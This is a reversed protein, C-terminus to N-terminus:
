AAAKVGDIDPPLKQMQERYVRRLCIMEAAATIAWSVIYLLYLSEITHFYAFVTYVWIIRFVCSGMIVIVTPVFSKGLGRNAAITCDMFASFAYSCGMIRLRIMGAQAVEEVNTFIGLFQRGFIVLLASMVLAIGFSFVMSIFYSHIIRKRKGAGYNQGVFTMSAIGLAGLIMWNIGDVKGLVVWSAVTDTGFRNVSAQILMNSLSYMISQFGAPLGIRITRSLIDGEFRMQRFRFRYEMSEASLSMVVMVASIAQALISAIAVGAIGMKFVLVFVLDLVVNSLCAVILFYLPRKSDGMARLIASGVNYVMNPVMGMFMIRLYLASGAITDEPTDMLRLMFETGVLGLVMIFAGGVLAFLMATHLARNVGDRDNAGFYQSIIVTAGSSVGTFFGILLNLINSASGGVAALADTGVFKGVVIADVTNYLQQFLSGLMIPFFFLLLQKWIVGTVMSNESRITREM